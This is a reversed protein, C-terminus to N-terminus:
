PHYTLLASVVGMGAFVGCSSTTHVPFLLWWGYTQGIQAELLGPYSDGGLNYCTGNPNCIDTVLSTPSSWSPSSLSATSQWSLGNSAIDFYVRLWRGLGPHFKFDGPGLGGSWSFPTIAAPNSPDDYQWMVLGVRRPGYLTYSDLWTNTNPHYVQRTAGLGAHQSDYIIRFLVMDAYGNPHKYTLLFYFYGDTPNFVVAVQGIGYPNCRLSFDDKPAIAPTDLISWYVGDTSVAWYVEGRSQDANGVVYAAYYVGSVKVVSPSANVHACSFSYSGLKLDPESTWAGTNPDRSAGFLGDHSRYWDATALPGFGQGLVRIVGNGDTFGEPDYLTAGCQDTDSKSAPALIVTNSATGVEFWDASLTPQYLCVAIVLGVLLTLLADLRLIRM